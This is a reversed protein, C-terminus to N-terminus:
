SAETNMEVSWFSNVEMARQDCESIARQCMEVNRTQQFELYACLSHALSRVSSNMFVRTMERDHNFYVISGRDSEDICIMDGYGTHGIMKCHPPEDLPELVTESTLGFSLFPAADNPLGSVTLLNKDAQLINLEAVKAVPFCIFEDLNLGLEPPVSPLFNLYRERFKEPNM